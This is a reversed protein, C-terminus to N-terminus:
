SPVRDRTIALSWGLRNYSGSWGVVKRTSDQKVSPERRRPARRRPRCVPMAAGDAQDVGTEERLLRRPECLNPSHKGQGGPGVDGFGNSMRLGRPNVHMLPGGDTRVEIMMQTFSDDSGRPSDWAADALSLAAEEQAAQFDQLELGEEDVALGESISSFKLV